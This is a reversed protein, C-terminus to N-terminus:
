ETTLASLAENNVETLFARLLVCDNVSILLNQFNLCLNQEAPSVLSGYLRCPPTHTHSWKSLQLKALKVIGGKKRAKQDQNNCEQEGSALVVEAWKQRM